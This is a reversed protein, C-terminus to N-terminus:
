RRMSVEVTEGDCGGVTEEIHLNQGKSNGFRKLEPVVALELTKEQARQIREEASKLNSGQLVVLIRCRQMGFELWMNAAKMTMKEMAQVSSKDLNAVESLTSTFEKRLADISTKFGKKLKARPDWESPLAQRLAARCEKITVYRWRETEMEPKPWTYSGNDLRSDASM